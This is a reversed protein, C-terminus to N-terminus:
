GNGGKGTNWRFNSGTPSSPRSYYGNGGWNGSGGWNQGSQRDGFGFRSDGSFSRHRQLPSFKSQAQIVKCNRWNHSSSQHYACYCAQCDAKIHGEKNCNYCKIVKKGESKGPM